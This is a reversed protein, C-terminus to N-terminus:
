GHGNAAGPGTALFPPDDTQTLRISSSLPYVAKKLPLGYKDTRNM